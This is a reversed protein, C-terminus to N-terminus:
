ALGWIQVQEAKARNGGFVLQCSAQSSKRIVTKTAIRDGSPKEKSASPRTVESRNKNKRPVYLWKNTAAREKGGVFLHLGWKAEEKWLRKKQQGKGAEESV